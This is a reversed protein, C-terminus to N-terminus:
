REGYIDQIDPLETCYYHVWIYVYNFGAVLLAAKSEYGLGILYLAMLGFVYMANNTYKFIGKKVFPLKSIEPDFHDQGAARLIGFYMKVSFLTWLSPILILVILGNKIIPNISISHSNSEGLYILFVARAIFLSFFPILYIPFAYKGLLRTLAQNKLELRWCIWVYVQHLIPIVVAWKLWFYTSKNWFEGELYSSDNSIIQYIITLLVILSLLHWGQYKFIKM